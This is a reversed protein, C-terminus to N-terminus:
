RKRINYNQRDAFVQGERLLAPATSGSGGSDLGQRIKAAMKTLGIPNQDLTQAKQGTTNKHNILLALNGIDLQDFFHGTLRIVIFNELGDFTFSAATTPMM